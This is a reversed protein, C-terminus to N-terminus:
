LCALPLRVPPPSKTPRRGSQATRWRSSGSSARNVLVDTIKSTIRNIQEPKEGRSFFDMSPLTFGFAQKRIQRARARDVVVFDGKTQAQDMLSVAADYCALRAAADAKTRCDLVDQLVRTSGGDTQALATTTSLAGCGALAAIKLFHSM